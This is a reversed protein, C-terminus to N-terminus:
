EEHPPWAVEIWQTYGHKEAGLVRGHSPEDCGPEDIAEAALAYAGIPTFVIEGDVCVWAELIYPVQEASDGARLVLQHWFVTVTNGKRTASVGTLPGYYPSWPMVVHPDVPAVAMVDGRVGMFSANVWCPNDGGIAQLLIWTGLENRGIVDLVSTGLLGYKYLYMAGPGYRCTLREPLVEARLIAYTPTLTPTETNTPSPTITATPNETPTNTLTATETATAPIPTFTETPPPPTPAAPEVTGPLNCATLLLTFIIHLTYKKYM